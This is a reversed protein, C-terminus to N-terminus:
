AVIWGARIYARVLELWSSGIWAIDDSPYVRACPWGSDKLAFYMGPAYYHNSSHVIVPCTPPLTALYDAVQRGTGCDPSLDLADHLPLDHDLSILIIDGLHDPLWAIM